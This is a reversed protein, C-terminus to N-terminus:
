WMTRARSAKASAALSWKCQNGCFYLKHVLLTVFDVVASKSNFNIKRLYTVLIEGFFNKKFFFLLKIRLVTISYDHKDRRYSTYKTLLIQM